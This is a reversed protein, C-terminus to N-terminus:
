HAAPPKVLGALRQQVTRTFEPNHTEALAVFREYHPIAERVEGKEELLVALNYHAEPIMPDLALAKRLAAEAAKSQSLRNYVLGLNAYAAADKPNRTVLINLEKAAEEVRNAALFVAALNSRAADFSPDLSLAQQFTEIAAAINGQRKYILGLNSYAAVNRADLRLTEKYAAVAKDLAEGKQYAVATEFLRRAKKRAAEAQEQSEVRSRDSPFAHRDSSADPKPEVPPPGAKRSVSAFERQVPGQATAPSQLDPMADPSLSAEEHPLKAPATEQQRQVPGDSSPQVSKLAAALPAAVVPPATAPQGSTQPVVRVIEPSKLSRGLIVMGALLPVTVAVMLWGFLRHGPKPGGSAPPLISSVEPWSSGGLKPRWQLRAKKLADSILSM